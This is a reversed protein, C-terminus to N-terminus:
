RPTPKPDPEPMPEPPVDGTLSSTTDLDADEGEGGPQGDRGLTYVRPEAGEESPREFRYPRSWPDTLANPDELYKAGNADPVCLVALDDPYQGGNNLAYDSLASQVDWMEFIAELRTTSPLGEPEPPQAARVAHVIRVIGDVDVDFRYSWTRERLGLVLYAPPCSALATTMAEDMPIPEQGMRQALASIGTMLPGPNVRVVYGPNADALVRLLDTGLPTPTTSSIRALTPELQAIPGTAALLNGEHVVYTVPIADTGFLKTLEQGMAAIAAAPDSGTDVMGGTLADPDMRVLLTTADLGAVKSATPGEVTFPMDPLKMMALMATLFAQPDKPRMAYTARIGEGDLRMGMAGLPGMGAYLDRAAHFLTVAKKAEAETGNRAAQTVSMQMLPELAQLFRSMDMASVAAVPSEPDIARVLAPLAKTDVPAVQVLPSGPMSTVEFGLQMRTGPMDLAIGVTEIKEIVDSVGHMVDELLARESESGAEALAGAVGQEFGQRFLEGYQAMLEEVDARVAMDHADLGVRLPADPALTSETPEMSLVVDQGHVKCTWGAASLAPNDAFAKPNTTPLLLTLAVPPRLESTAVALAIPRKPDIADWPADAGVMGGLMPLLPPIPTDEGGFRALSRMMAELKESSAARVVLVTNAPILDDVDTPATATAGASPNAPAPKQSSPNQSSSNQASPNQAPAPAPPAQLALATALPLYLPALAHIM